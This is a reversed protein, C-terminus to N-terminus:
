VSVPQSQLLDKVAALFQQEIYPKTFYASAGLRTALQRHKDSGRSTLMAVPIKAMEPHRRRQGLFEFGNLNPMEVDCIVLQIGASRNLTELAEQGDKAQIVRYGARELTFALTRRLAASDDVVLILPALASQDLGPAYEGTLAVEGALATEGREWHWELLLAGNIVPILSGDGIITCGYLYPPAQLVSAFPKIVLEQETVLRSAELAYYHDGRKLLLLPLSWDEPQPVASFAKSSQGEGLPCNYALLQSLSYIPIMQQQWLFFRQGGSARVQEPLPVMLEAISDSPLAVATQTRQDDQAILCVLLKAITLTLPLRLSFTTGRGPRSSVVINGKLSQIQQRVVDLGVGRGSLDSVQDATSFNPEFILNSIQEPTLNPAQEPTILGVDIAKQTIKELNLGGGDDRLEILTQNGQHFAHIEITGREPKGQALRAEPAEIGHDFANRLLHLLPDYLKEIALRDVLVHVGYLKLQVPKHHKASMDRLVRPFRNLVEGLPLMRAWMLEDRLSFLMQRQSELSQNTARAFLVIDDVAEELQLMEELIDQLQGSLAGYSDMELADFAQAIWTNEPKNLLTQGGPAIVLQDALERLKGTMNQFRSFRSLLSRVARQLQENQLSLSNRNIALEGVWNNMRELRQFDVRISLSPTPAPTPPAPSSLPSPSSHSSLPSPPSSPPTPTPAEPAPSTQAPVINNVGLAPLEAFNAQVSELLDSVASDDAPTIEASPTFEPLLSDPILGGFVDELSPTLPEPVIEPTEALGFIDALAANAAEDLPELEAIPEPELIPEPEPAAEEEEDEGFFLDSLALRPAAEPQLPILTEEPEAPALATALSLLEASPQGGQTRDGEALVADCSGRWDRLAAQAIATIEAPRNILAQQAAETIAKFGPLNLLEALGLFVEAQAGLTDQLLSNDGSNLADQIQELGQVIDVEFLSSVIDVGLDSSSPMFAEGAQLFDGLQFEIAEIVPQAAGLAQQPDYAGTQIQTELPNKLCDYGALLLSELDEDVVVEPNYLAKFIDELRHAIDKVANMGVSAAGGKLSHAARMIEHVKAASRDHRIGLLGSEIIQLLEPAEEIFFQYAPEDTNLTEPSPLSSPYSLPSLSSLSASENHTAALFPEAEPPAFIDNELNQVPTEEPLTFIDGLNPLPDLAGFLNEEPTPEPNVEASLTFIDGLDPLPEEPEQPDSLLLAPTEGQGALERLAPSPAGGQTRDGQNLVADCSGRWDQLALNALTLVQEPAQNLASQVLTTIEKFGPLNLLEALGGFVETQAGLIETVLSEEGSDLAGQIQELGQVIDVEFLSSVIDVGLDSSSPIFQEGAALYDGLIFALAEFVPKAKEETEEENFSGTELQQILPEKLCDYGALLLSELDEDIVVEESYLAKFMDELRHAIDKIVPLEVSAAGGKLSHAARMMEHVKGPTKEERITLLGTEIVGLLEPAEEIFFQYAHDRIDSNM